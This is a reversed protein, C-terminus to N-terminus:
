PMKELFWQGKSSIFTYVGRYLQTINTFTVPNIPLTFGTIKLAYPDGTYIIKITEGDHIAADPFRVGYTFYYTDPQDCYYVGGTKIFYDSAPLGGDWSFSRTPETKPFSYICQWYAPIVVHTPDNSTVYQDPLAIFTYCAGGPITIVRGEGFPINEAFGPFFINVGNEAINVQEGLAVYITIKKGIHYAPDPFYVATNKSSGIGKVINYYGHNIIYLPNDNSLTDYLEINSYIPETNTAHCMWYSTSRGDNSGVDVFEFVYTMGAPVDYVDTYMPSGTITETQHTGGQFLIPYNNSKVSTSYNINFNAYEAKSIVTIKDGNKWSTRDDFILGHSGSTKISGETVYYIGPVSATYDSLSLSVTFFPLPSGGGGPIDVTVVGTGGSSATVGSGTFNIVTTASDIVSGEDQITLASGGGGGTANITVAGTGGSPSITVNSGAIIQSVGTSKAVLNGDLIGDRYWYEVGNVNVTLGRYRVASALLSNVQTTSTYPSLGNYYKDEVPKQQGVFISDSLQIAM